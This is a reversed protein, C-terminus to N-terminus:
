AAGALFAREGAGFFIPFRADGTRRRESPRFALLVNRCATQIFLFITMKNGGITPCIFREIPARIGM